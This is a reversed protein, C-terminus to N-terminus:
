KVIEFRQIQTSDDHMMRMFYIGPSLSSVDFHIIDAALSTTNLIKQGLLDYVELASLNSGDTTQVHLINSAPNPYLIWSTNKVKEISTVCDSNLGFTMNSSTAGNLFELANISEGNVTVNASIVNANTPLETNMDLEYCGDPICMEVTTTFGSFMPL